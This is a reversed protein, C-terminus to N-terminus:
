LSPAEGLLLLPPPPSAPGLSSPLPSSDPVTEHLAAAHLPHQSEFSLQWGPVVSVTHPDLECGHAFQVDLPSVHWPPNQPLEEDEPPDDDELPDPPPVVYAQTVVSAEGAGTHSECCSYQRQVAFECHLLLPMFTSPFPPHLLPCQEPPPLQVPPWNVSEAPHEM